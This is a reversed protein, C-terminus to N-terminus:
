PTLVGMMAQVQGLRVGREEASSEELKTPHRHNREFAALSGEEGSHFAEFWAEAVEGPRTDPFLFPDQAAALPAALLFTILPLTM